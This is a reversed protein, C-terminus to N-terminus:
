FFDGANYLQDLPVDNPQWTRVKILPEERETMDVLLFLYGEDAYTSSDYQQRINIAFISKENFKELWQVEHDTFQLNIFDNRGFCKELRKLYEEKTYENKTIIQQGSLSLAIGDIGHRGTQPEAVGGVIIRADNAFIRRIYDIDELSYATKYNEMFEVISERVDERWAAGPRNLIGGEAVKGLGFAVNEIKNYANFTFTIDEVFTRKRKGQFSFAMQLGRATTTGNLGRYYKIEPTGIIRATGYSILRNYKEMGELTFYQEADSYRRTAIAKVVKDIIGAHVSEAAHTADAVTVGIHSVLGDSNKAFSRKTAKIGNASVKKVANPFPRPTIVKLVSEMESDGRALSEFKYEIDIHFTDTEYGPIMVICGKGDKARALYEMDRGNSYNYAINTVPRGLYTFLLDVDDGDRDTFEVDVDSLIENIHFPLWEVLVRGEADRVDDPFQLSRLLSYAYYYSQLATELKLKALAENAFRIKEKAKNIRSDFMRNLESRKMYLRVEFEGSKTRGSGLEWRHVNTLSAQSYSKLCSQVSSRHTAEDNIFKEEEIQRFDMSVHTAISGVLRAYADQTAEETTKGYGIGWYYEDSNQIHEWSEAHSMMPCLLLFFIKITIISLRNFKM